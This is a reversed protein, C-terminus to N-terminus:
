RTHAWAVADMFNDFLATPHRVLRAEISNMVQNRIHESEAVIAYRIRPNTLYGGLRLALLDERDEDSFTFRVATLYVSIVYRFADFRAHNVVERESNVLDGGSVTGTFYKIAGGQEWEIQYGM